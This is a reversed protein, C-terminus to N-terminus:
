QNDDFHDLVILAFLTIWKSPQGKIEVDAWMQGNFSRDLRWVGESTRKKLIIELPKVLEDSMPTGVTALALMAEVIDSNYNLPFGFRTWYRKSQYGGFGQEKMFVERKEAVWDKVREGPALEGRKPAQDRIELWAERNAPLYIYVQHSVLEKVIWDIAKQIIPTQQEPPVESFCFLYKPLTMYCHTMLDYQMGGCPIGGADLLRQAMVETGEIVHPHDGYGLRRFATLICANMCYNATWEEELMAQLDSAIRPDHGDAMYCGLFHTNWHKGKFSWRGYYTESHWIEHSHALIGQTVSYNMLESRAQQVEADSETCHLLRILTLYRVPPNDEQLLWQIVDERDM